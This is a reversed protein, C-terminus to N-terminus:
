RLQPLTSTKNMANGITGDSSLLSSGKDFLLTLIKTISKLANDVLKEGKGSGLVAVITGIIDNSIGIGMDAFRAQINTLKAKADNLNSSSAFAAIESSLKQKDLEKFERAKTLNFTLTDLQTKLLDVNADAEDKARQSAYYYHEVDYNSKATASISEAQKINTSQKLQELIDTKSQKFLELEQQAREADTSIKNTEAKTKQTTAQTLALNAISAFADSVGGLSSDFGSFISSPTSGIDATSIDAGLPQAAGGFGGDAGFASNLGARKLSEFERLKSNYLDSVYDERQRQYDALNDERQKAYNKDNYEQQQAMLKKSYEYNKRAQMNATFLSSVGGIAAGGIQGWTSMIFTKLGM